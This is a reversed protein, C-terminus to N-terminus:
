TQVRRTFLEGGVPAFLFFPMGINDIRSPFQILPECCNIRIRRPQHEGMRTEFPIAMGLDEIKSPVRIRILPQNHGAVM